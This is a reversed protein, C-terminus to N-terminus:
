RRNFLNRGRHIWPVRGPLVGGNSARSVLSEELEGTFNADTCTDSSLSALPGRRNTSMDLRARDVEVGEFQGAEALGRFVVSGTPESHARVAILAPSRGAM